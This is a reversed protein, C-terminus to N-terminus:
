STWGSPWARPRRTPREIRAPRLRRPQGPPPHARTARRRLEDGRQRGHQPRRPRRARPRSSTSCPTSTASTTTSGSRTRAAAPAAASAAGTSRSSTARRARRPARARRRHVPVVRGRGDVRAHAGAAPTRADGALRRGMRAVPVARQARSRPPRPRRATRRLPRIVHPPSYLLDWRRASGRAVISGHARGGGRVGRDAEGRARVDGDDDGQDAVERGVLIVGVEGGGRRLPRSAWSNPSLRHRRTGSRRAAVALRDGERQEEM